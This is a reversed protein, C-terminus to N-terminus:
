RYQETVAQFLLQLVQEKTETTSQRWRTEEYAPTKQPMVVLKSVEGSYVKVQMTKRPRSLYTSVHITLYIYSCPFQISLYILLYEFLHIFRYIYLYIFLIFAYIILCIIIYIMRICLHIFLCTFLCIHLYIFLNIFLYHFVYTYNRGTQKQSSNVYMYETREVKYSYQLNNCDSKQPTNHTKNLLSFWYNLFSSLYFSLSAIVRLYHM